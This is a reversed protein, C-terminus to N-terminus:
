IEGVYTVKKKISCTITNRLNSKAVLLTRVFVSLALRSKKNIRGTFRVTDDLAM